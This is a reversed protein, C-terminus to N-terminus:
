KSSSDNWPDDRWTTDASQAAPPTLTVAPTQPPSANSQTQPANTNTHKATTDTRQQTAWALYTKVQTTPLQRLLLVPFAWLVILMFGAQVMGGGTPADPMEPLVYRMTLIVSVVAVLIAYYAWGKLVKLAWLRDRLLGIGAIILVMAMVTSALSEIGQGIRYVPHRLTRIQIQIKELQAETLQQGMGEMMGIAKELNSPGALSVATQALSNIGIIVGLILCFIGFVM